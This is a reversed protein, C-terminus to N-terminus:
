AQISKIWLPYETCTYQSKGYNFGTSQIFAGANKPFEWVRTEQVGCPIWANENFFYPVFYVGGRKITYKGPSCIETLGDAYDGTAKSM